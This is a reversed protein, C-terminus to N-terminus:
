GIIPWRREAARRDMMEQIRGQVMDSIEALKEKDQLVEDGYTDLSIPEGVEVITKAPLPLHFIPGFGIGWPLALFLPFSESRLYKRMGTIRALRAGRRLIIFSEHDGYFLVPVIPVRNKLALRIYGTKPGFDVKNRNRWTRFAEYNGGPFVLIKHGMEFAQNAADHSARIAGLAMLLNGVVPLAVMADHALAHMTEEEDAREFWAVGFFFPSLFTIGANHNGVVLAKGEPLKEIGHVEARFYKSLLKIAPVALKVFERNQSQVADPDLRPGFISAFAKLEKRM